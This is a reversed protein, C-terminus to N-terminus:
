SVVRVQLFFRALIFLCLLLVALVAHLFRAFDHNGVSGWRRGHGM